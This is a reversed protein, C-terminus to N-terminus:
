WLKEEEIIEAMMYAGWAPAAVGDPDKPSVLELEPNIAGAKVMTQKVLDSFGPMNSLGGCVCLYGIGESQIASVAKENKQSAIPLFQNTIDVAASATFDKLIPTIVAPDVQIDVLRGDKTFIEDIPKPDAYSFREKVRRAQRDNVSIGRNAQSIAQRLRKDLLWGGYPYVNQAIRKRGEFFAVELTSSGFNLSITQSELIQETGITSLAAAWAEMIYQKGITGKGIGNIVKKLQNLGEEHRM